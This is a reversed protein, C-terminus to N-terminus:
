CFQACICKISHAFVLLLCRYISNLHDIPIVHPCCEAEMVGPMYVCQARLTISCRAKKEWILFHGLARKKKNFHICKQKLYLFYFTAVSDGLKRVSVYIDLFYVSLFQLSLFFYIFCIVQFSALSVWPIRM